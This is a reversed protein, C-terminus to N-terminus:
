FLSLQEADNEFKEESKKNLSMKEVYKKRAKDCSLKLLDDDSNIWWETFGKAYCGYMYCGTSPDIKKKAKDLNGCYSCMTFM